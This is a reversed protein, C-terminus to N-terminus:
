IEIIIEKLRQIDIVAGNREKVEEIIESRLARYKKEELENKVMEYSEKFSLPKSELRGNVKYIHYEGTQYFLPESVEGKKLGSLKMSLFGFKNVEIYGLHGDYLKEENRISYKRVLSSFTAGKNLENIVKEGEAKSSVVIRSVDLKLPSVYKSTNKYYAERIEIDPVAISERISREASKAMYVNISQDISAQVDKIKDINEHMAKELLYKRYAIGTIFNEVDVKTRIRNLNSSPTYHTETVFDEISISFAEESYEGLQKTKIASLSLAEFDNSQFASYNNKIKEWIIETLEEDTNFNNEFIYMHERTAMEREQKQALYAIQQKQSAFEYETIVPKTIKENLKIISYGQATRVPSSIDGVDMQYAKREFAVDMEDVSFVGLQGGNTALRENKFVSAALNEFSIGQKLLAYLSDAKEMSPAYLHSASLQTNLKVFMEQIEAESVNINGLIVRDLYEENLVKREIMGKMRLADESKDLGIESAYTALVYVNFENNLIEAKTSQSPKLSQGSKYYYRLFAAQFHDETVKYGNISALVLDDVEDGKTCSIIISAIVVISIIRGLKLLYTHVKDM